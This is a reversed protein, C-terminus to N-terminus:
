FALWGLLYLTNNNKANRGAADYNTGTGNFNHYGVYQALIKVNQWPVYTIEGTWGNSNPRNLGVGFVPSAQYLLADSSGTTSFLGVAGGYTRRFYYSGALRTTALTNRLNAAGGAAVAADLSQHERIYTGQVSVIHPDGIYQYQGDAAIDTFTDTLPQDVAGIHTRTGYAGASLSNKDWQREASIRWYPAAGKVIDGATSDLPGALGNFNLGQPSPGYLGFEGYISNNLWIYGTLGVVGRGALGGDIQTTAGPVPAASTRQDFPVQWAPTSNWVDQVTPNNNLTIGVTLGRTVRTLQKAYRVETNDWHVNGSASDYTIQVFAGLNPAVRGAYFISAQQPFLIQGNQSSSEPVKSDPLATGTHTYSTQFMVSLPPISNLQLTLDRSSSIGQVQPLNDIQYGNLKFL